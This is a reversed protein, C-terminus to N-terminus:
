SAPMTFTATDVTTAAGVAIALDSITMPAGSTGINFDVRIATTSAGTTYANAYLRGWAATGAVLGVGSWVDSNKSVVGSITSGWRLGNTTVGGTFAGSANTILCLLSTGETLDPTAPMTGGYIGIVGYDFLTKFDGGNNFTLTTGVLFDESTDLTGAACTVTGATVATVAKDTVDNAGTNSGTTTFTDGVKVGATLFRNQTDTITDVGAGGEVYALEAAGSCGKFFADGLWSNRFGTSLRLTM